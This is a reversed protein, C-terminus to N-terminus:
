FLGFLDFLGLLFTSRSGVWRREPRRASGDRSREWKRQLPLHSEQLELLM